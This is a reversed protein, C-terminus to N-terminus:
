KSGGIANKIDNYRSFDGTKKGEKYAYNKQANDFNRNGSGTGGGASKFSDAASKSAGFGKGAQGAQGAQNAQNTGAANSINNIKQGGGGGGDFGNKSNVAGM